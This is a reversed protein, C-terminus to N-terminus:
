KIKALVARYNTLQEYCNYTQSSYKKSYHLGDPEYCIKTQCSYKELSDEGSWPEIYFKSTNILSRVKTNLDSSNFTVTDYIKFSSGAESDWHTDALNEQIFVVDPLGKKSLIKLVIEARDTEPTVKDSSGTGLNASIVSLTEPESQPRSEAMGAQGRWM